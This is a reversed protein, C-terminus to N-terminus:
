GLRMAVTPADDVDEDGTAPVVLSTIEEALARDWKDAFWLVRDEIDGLRFWQVRDWSILDDATVEGTAILAELGALCKFALRTGDTRQVKWTLLVDIFQRQPFDPDVQSLDGARALLPASVPPPPAVRFAGGCEPCELVVGAPPVERQVKYRTRCHPCQTLM